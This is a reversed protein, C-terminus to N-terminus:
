PHPDTNITVTSHHKPNIGPIMAARTMQLRLFSQASGALGPTPESRTQARATTSIPRPVRRKQVKVSSCTPM